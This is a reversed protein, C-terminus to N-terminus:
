EEAGMINKGNYGAYFFELGFLTMVHYEAWFHAALVGSYEFRKRQILNLSELAGAVYEPFIRFDVGGYIEYVYATGVQQDLDLAGAILCSGRRRFFNSCKVSLEEPYGEELNHIRMANIHAPLISDFNEYIDNSIHLFSDPPESENHPQALFELYKLHVSDLKSLIDICIAQNASAGRSASALLNAWKEIIFDDDPETLSAKEILPILIKSPVPGPIVGEIQLRNNAKKAIEIMVDERQLRIQDARMGRAETFPRIADTLADVLRGMSSTPVEATIEAKASIGVDINLHSKDEAM